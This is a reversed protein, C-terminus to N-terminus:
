KILKLIKTFLHTNEYLGSFHEAGPGFAFVPVLTATHNFSSFDIEVKGTQLSGGKLSVGGTEHDATIIVLTNGDKQAYDLVQGIVDDFEVVEDILNDANRAHAAWDIQSAEVMLFFGDPDDDLSQIALNVALSLYDGRGDSKKPPHEKWLLGAVPEVEQNNVPLKQQKLEDLSKIVTYNSVRLVELLNQKDKREGFSEMGGGMWFDIPKHILDIAIEDTNNRSNQHAYFSAPTAHTVASTVVFGNAKGASKAYDMLSLLSDGTPTIGLVGNRVKKGSAIATGGAASDTIYDDASNTKMLGTHSCRAMELKGKKVTMATYVQTLGMGDGIMLIIQKPKGPDSSTNEKLPQDIGFSIWSTSLLMILFPLFIKQM